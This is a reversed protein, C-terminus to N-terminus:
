NVFYIQGFDLFGNFLHDSRQLSKFPIKENGKASTSVPPIDDRISRWAPVPALPSFVELAPIKRPRKPEPRICTCTHVRHPCFFRLSSIVPISIAEPIKWHKLQSDFPGKFRSIQPM